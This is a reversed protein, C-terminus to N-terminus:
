KQNVEAYPRRPATTANAPERADIFGKRLYLSSAVINCAIYFSDPLMFLFPCVASYYGDVKMM